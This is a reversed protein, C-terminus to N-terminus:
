VTQKCLASNMTTDLAVFKFRANIAVVVMSLEEKKTEFKLSDSNSSQRASSLFEEM